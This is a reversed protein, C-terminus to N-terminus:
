RRYRQPTSMHHYCRLRTPHPYVTRRSRAAFGWPRFSSPAAGRKRVPPPSKVLRSLAKQEWPSLSRVRRRRWRAGPLDTLPPAPTLAPARPPRQFHGNARLAAAAMNCGSDKVKVPTAGHAPLRRPHPTKKPPKAAPVTKTATKRCPQGRTGSPSNTSSPPAATHPPEQPSILHAAKAKTERPQGGLTM